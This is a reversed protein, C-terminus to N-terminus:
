HGSKSITAHHKAIRGLITDADATWVFPKADENRDDLYGLASRELSEVSKFVGRRWTWTSTEPM